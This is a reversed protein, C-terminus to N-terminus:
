SPMVALIANCYAQVQELRIRTYCVANDPLVRLPNQSFLDIILRKVVIYPYINIYMKIYM